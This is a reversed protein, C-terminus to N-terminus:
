PVSGSYIILMGFTPAPAMQPPTRERRMASVSAIFRSHGHWLRVLLERAILLVAMVVAILLHGGYMVPIIRDGPFDPGFLLSLAWTGVFPISQVVSMILWLSGGSLMDDPLANGTEGAAMGLALLTM